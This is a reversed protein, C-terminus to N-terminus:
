SRTIEYAVVGDRPSGAPAMGAAEMVRISAPLSPLTEARVASAGRGFAAAIMGQAAETAYGRRRVSAVVSYGIEVAGDEGPPGKFGGVGVLLPEDRRVFYHTWWGDAGKERLASATLELVRDTHFDPPWDSPLRAGLASGLGEQSALELEILEVTAPILELRKTRIAEPTM